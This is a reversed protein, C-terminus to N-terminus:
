GATNWHNRADISSDLWIEREPEMCLVRGVYPREQDIDEHSSIGRCVAPVRDEGLKEVRGVISVQGGVEFCHCVTHRVANALARIAGHM